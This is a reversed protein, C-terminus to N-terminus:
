QADQIDVDEIESTYHALLKRAKEEIGPVKKIGIIEPDVSFSEDVPVIQDWKYEEGDPQDLQNAKIIVEAIKTLSKAQKDDGALAAATAKELLRNARARQFEKEAKPASGFLRVVLNMDSYAVDKGVGFQTTIYDRMQETPIMPNEMWRAFIKKLRELRVASQPPLKFNPNEIAKTFADLIDTERKQPM